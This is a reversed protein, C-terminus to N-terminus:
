GREGTDGIYMAPRKRVAEMGELVTINAATYNGAPIEAQMPDQEASRTDDSMGKETNSKIM